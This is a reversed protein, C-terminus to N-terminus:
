SAHVSTHREHMLGAMVGLIGTVLHFAVDFGTLGNPLMGFFQPSILGIPGMGIYLIGVTMIVTNITGNDRTGFGVYLLAAAIPLRLLDLALDSNMVGFLKADGSLLGVLALALVVIGLIQALRKAM